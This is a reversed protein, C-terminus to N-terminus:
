IMRTLSAVFNAFVMERNQHFFMSLIIIKEVFIIKHLLCKPSLLVTLSLCFCQYVKASADYTKIRMKLCLAQFWFCKFVCM